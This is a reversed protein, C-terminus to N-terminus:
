PGACSSLVVLNTMAKDIAQVMVKTAGLALDTATCLEKFAVEELPSLKSYDRDKTGDFLPSLLLLPPFLVPRIPLTGHSPSNKIFQLCSRLPGKGSCAWWETDSVMLSMSDGFAIEGKYVSYIGPWECGVLPTSGGSHLM